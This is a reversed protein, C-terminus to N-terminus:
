IRQYSFAFTPSPSHPVLRRGVNYLATMRKDNNRDRYSTTGPPSEAPGVLYLSWHDRFYEEEWLVETLVDKIWLIPTRQDLLEEIEALEELLTCLEHTLDKIRKRTEQSTTSTVKHRLM